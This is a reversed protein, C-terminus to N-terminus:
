LVGHAAPHQPGFNLALLDGEPDYADLDLYPDARPLNSIQSSRM